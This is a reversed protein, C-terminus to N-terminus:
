PSAGAVAHDLSPDKVAVGHNDFAAIHRFVAANEDHRDIIFFYRQRLQAVAAGRNHQLRRCFRHFGCKQGVPDFHLVTEDSDLM